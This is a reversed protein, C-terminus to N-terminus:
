IGVTMATPSAIVLGLNVKVGVGVRVLGVRVRM